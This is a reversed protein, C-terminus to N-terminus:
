TLQEALLSSLVSLAPAPPHPIASAKATAKRWGGLREGGVSPPKSKCWCRQQHPCFYCDGTRVRLSSHPPQMWLLKPPKVWPYPDFVGKGDFGGVAELGMSSATSAASAAPSSYSNPQRDRFWQVVVGARGPDCLLLKITPIGEITPDTELQM